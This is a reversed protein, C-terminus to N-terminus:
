PMPSRFHDHVENISLWGFLGPELGPAPTAEKRREFLSLSAADEIREDEDVLWLLRKSSWSKDFFALIRRDNSLEAISLEGFDSPM